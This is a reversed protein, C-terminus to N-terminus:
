GLNNMFDSNVVETNRSLVNTVISVPLIIHYNFLILDKM